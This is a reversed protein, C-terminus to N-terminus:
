KELEVPESIVVSSIGNKHTVNINLGHSNELLFNTHNMVKNGVV